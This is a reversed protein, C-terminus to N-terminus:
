SVTARRQIPNTKTCHWMKFSNFSQSNVMRLELINPWFLKQYSLYLWNFLSLQMSHCAWKWKKCLLGSERSTWVIDLSCSSWVWCTFKFFPTDKLEPYSKMQEAHFVFTDHSLFNCSFSIIKNEKYFCRKLQDM